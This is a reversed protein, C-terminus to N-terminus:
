NEPNIRAFFTDTNPNIRTRMKGCECQILLSVSYREPFHSDSCSRIRVSKVCHISFFCFIIIVCLSIWFGTFYLLLHLKKCYFKQFFRSFFNVLTLSFDPHLLNHIFTLTLQIYFVFIRSLKVSFRQFALSFDM